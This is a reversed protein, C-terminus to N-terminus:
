HKSGCGVKKNTLKTSIKVESNQHSSHKQKKQYIYSLGLKLKTSDSPEIVLTKPSCIVFVKDKLHQPRKIRPGDLKFIVEMM